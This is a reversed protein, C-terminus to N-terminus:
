ALLLLGLLALNVVVTIASYTMGLRALRKHEPTWVLRGQDLSALAFCLGLGPVWLTWLSLVGM